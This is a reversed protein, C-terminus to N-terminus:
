NVSLDNPSEYILRQINGDLWRVRNELWLRTREIEEEWSQTYPAPNPWIETVGDYKEPWREANQIAPESLYEVMADFMTFVSEDSWITKRLEMWRDSFGRAFSKDDFLRVISYHTISSLSYYHPNGHSFNGMSLDCDWVPGMVLKGGVQRHMFTSLLGADVNGILEAVLYYDIFSGVDIYRQYDWDEVATYEFVGSRTLLDLYFEVERRLQADQRTTMNNPTPHSYRINFGNPLTFYNNRARDLQFVYGGGEFDITESENLRFEELNLRSEGVTISECLLYVGQYEIMGSEGDQKFLQVPKGQPQWDLVTAALEYSFWNRMLSKDAYPSHLVWESAPAFGLFGYDLPKISANITYLRLRLPKKPFSLSTHGRYLATAMDFVETPTDTLRNETESDFLWIVAAPPATRNLLESVNTQVVIIPLHTSFELEYTDMKDQPLEHTIDRADGIVSDHSFAIVATTALVLVFLLVIRTKKFNSKIM